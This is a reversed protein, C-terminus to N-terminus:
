SPRSGFAGEQDVEYGAGASSSMFRNHCLNTDSFIAVALAKIVLLMQVPCTHNGLLLINHYQPASPDKDSPPGKADLCM